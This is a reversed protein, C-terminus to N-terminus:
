GQSVLKLKYILNVRNPTKICSVRKKSSKCHQKEQTHTLHVNHACGKVRYHDSLKVLVADLWATSRLGTKLTPLALVSEM